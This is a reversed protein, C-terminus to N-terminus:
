RSRHGSAQRGGGRRRKRRASRNPVSLARFGIRFAGRPNANPCRGAAPGRNKTGTVPTRIGRGWGNYTLGAIEHYGPKETGTDPIRVRLPAFSLWLARASQWRLACPPRWAEAASAPPPLRVRFGEAGALSFLLDSVTHPRAQKRKAGDHSIAMRFIHSIQGAKIGYVHFLGSGKLSGPRGRKRCRVTKHPIRQRDPCSM